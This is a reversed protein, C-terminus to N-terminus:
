VILLLTSFVGWVGILNGMTIIVNNYTGTLVIAFPISIQNTNLDDVDFISNPVKPSNL